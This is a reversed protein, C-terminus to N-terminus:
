KSDASATGEVFHLPEVLPDEEEPLVMIEAAAEPRGTPLHPVRGHAFDDM